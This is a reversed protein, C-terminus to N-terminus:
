AMSSRLEKSLKKSAFPWSRYIVCPGSVWGCNCCVVELIVQNLLKVWMAAGLGFKKHANPKLREMQHTTNQDHNTKNGRPHHSASHRPTIHHWTTPQSTSSTIHDTTLRRSTLCRPENRSRMDHSTADHETIHHSLTNHWTVSQSTIRHSASDRWTIIRHRTQWAHLTIQHSPICHSPVNHSQSTIDNTTVVHWSIHHSTTTHIHHILSVLHQSSRVVWSLLVRSLDM